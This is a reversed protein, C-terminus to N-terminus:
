PPSVVLLQLTGPLVPAHPEPHEPTPKPVPGFKGAPLYANGTLSDVAMTRSGAETPVSAELSFNDGPKEDIVTMTGVRCSAFIRHRVSDFAVADVGQGIPFSQLVHGTEANLVRLMQDGCGVFLRHSSPDIAMASPECSAPLKWQATIERKAADIELILGKDEIADFVHGADDAVAFEPKGPLALEGAVKGKAADIVSVSQSRGNFAFVQKTV